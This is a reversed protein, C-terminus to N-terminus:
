INLVAPLVDTITPLLDSKPQRIKFASTGGEPAPGGAPQLQLNGAAQSRAQNIQATRQIELMRRTDEQRAGAEDALQKQMDAITQMLPGMVQQLQAQSQAQMQAMMAAFDTEPKPPASLAPTGIPSISPAASTTPKSEAPAPNRERQAAQAFAAAEAADIYDGFARQWYAAGEPDPARGLVTQYLDNVTLQPQAPAAPAAASRSYIPVQASSYGSGMKPNPTRQTRYGTITWGEGPPKQPTGSFIGTGQPSWTEIAM